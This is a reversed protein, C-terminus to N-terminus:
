NAALKKEKFFRFKVIRFDLFNLNLIFITKVALYSYRCFIETCYLHVKKFIVINIFYYYYSIGSIILNNM